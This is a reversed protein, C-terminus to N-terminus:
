DSSYGQFGTSAITYDVFLALSGYNCAPQDFNRYLHFFFTLSFFFSALSCNQVMFDLKKLMGTCFSCLQPWTSPLRMILMSYALILVMKVPYERCLFSENFIDTVGVDIFFLVTYHEVNKRESDPLFVYFLVQGLKARLHPSGVAWPRRLFFILISLIPSMDVGKFHTGDTKAVFLLIECIDELLHQPMTALVMCSENMNNTLDLEVKWNGSSFSNMSCLHIRLFTSATSCFSLADGIFEPSLMLADLVIKNVLYATAQPHGTTLENRFHHIGRMIRGYNVCENVVGIHLARWTLFLLVTLFNFDKLDTMPVRRSLSGSFHSEPIATTVPIENLPFVDTTESSFLFRWDIKKIKELDGMFPRCLRLLAGAFNHLYGRSSAFLFNPQEKTAELNLGVCQRMWLLAKDKSLKDKLLATLADCAQGQVTTSITRLRAVNTDVINRPQKPSDKLLDVIKSDRPDIAGARLMRGLITHHELATGAAGGNSIFLQPNMMRHLENPAPPLLKDSGVLFNSHSSVAKSFRKDASLLTTIVVAPCSLDDLASVPSIGNNFHLMFANQQSAVSGNLDLYCVSLISQM